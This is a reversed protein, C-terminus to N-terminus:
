DDPVLEMVWQFRRAVDYKSVEVMVLATTPSSVFDVLHPHKALFPGAMDDREDGELERSVGHATLAIADMFDSVQNTRDDILLAVHCDTSLNEFKKTAKNTAFLLRGMDGAMAFAVLSTHPGESGKTALVALPEKELLEQVQTRVSVKGATYRGGRDPRHRVIRYLL